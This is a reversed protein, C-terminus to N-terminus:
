RHWKEERGEKQAAKGSGPSTAGYEGQGTKKIPGM